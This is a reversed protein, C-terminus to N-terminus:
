RLCVLRVDLVFVTVAARRIVLQALEIDRETM